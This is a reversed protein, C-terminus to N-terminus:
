SWLFVNHTGRQKQHKYDHKYDDDEDDDDDDDDDEDDDDDDDDWGMKQKKGLRWCFCLFCLVDWFLKRESKGIWGEGEEGRNKGTLRGLYCSSYRPWTAFSAELNM